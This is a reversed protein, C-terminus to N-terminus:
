TPYPAQILFQRATAYNLMPPNGHGVPPVYGVAYEDISCGAKRLLYVAKLLCSLDPMYHGSHNDIKVLRHLGDIEMMGACILGRGAPITSHHVSRYDTPENEIAYFDGDVGLVYIYTGARLADSPREFPRNKWHVDRGLFCIEQRSQEGPGLYRTPSFGQRDEGRRGRDMMVQTDAYRRGFVDTLNGNSRWQSDPSVSM